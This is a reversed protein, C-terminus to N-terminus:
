DTVKVAVVAAAAEQLLMIPLVQLHEEMKEMVEMVQTDGQEAVEALGIIVLREAVPRLAEAEVEEEVQLMIVEQQRHAEVVAM